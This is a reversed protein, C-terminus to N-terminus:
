YISSNWYNNWTKQGSQLINYNTHSYQFTTNKRKPSEGADSNYTVVNRFVRDRKDEYTTYPPLIVPILNNPYEEQKCQWHLHFLCPTEFRPCMFKPLRPIVWVFSHLTRFVAFKQLVSVNKSFQTSLPLQDTKFCCPTQNAVTRLSTYIILNTLKQLNTAITNLPCFQKDNPKHWVIWRHYPSVLSIHVTNLTGQRVGQASDLV